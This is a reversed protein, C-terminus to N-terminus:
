LDRLRAQAIPHSLGVGVGTAARIPQGRRLLLLEGLQTPAVTLELHFILNELPRRRIEGPLVNEWLLTGAPGHVRRRRYRRRPTRGAARRIGNRSSRTSLGVGIPVRVPGRIAALGCRVRAPWRM